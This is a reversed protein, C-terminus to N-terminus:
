QRRRFGLLGMSPLFLWLAALSGGANCACGSNFITPKNPDMGDGYVDVNINVDATIPGSAEYESGDDTVGVSFQDQGAFGPNPTYTVEGEEDVEATGHM